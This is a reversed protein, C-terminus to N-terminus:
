QQPNINMPGANACRPAATPRFNSRALARNRRPNEMPMAPRRAVEKAATATSAMAALTIISRSIATTWVV